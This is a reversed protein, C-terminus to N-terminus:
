AHQERHSDPGITDCLECESDDSPGEISREEEEDDGEVGKGEVALGGIDTGEVIICIDVEREFSNADEARSGEIGTAGEVSSFNAEEVGNRELNAGEITIHNAGEVGGGQRLATMEVEEEEGEAKVGGVVPGPGYYDVTLAKSMCSARVKVLGEDVSVSKKLDSMAGAAGIKSRSKSLKVKQNRIAGVRRNDSMLDGVESGYFISGGSVTPRDIDFEKVRQRMLPSHTQLRKYGGNKGTDGRSLRGVKYAAVTAHDLKGPMGKIKQGIKRENVRRDSVTLNPKELDIWCRELYGRKVETAEIVYNVISDKVDQAHLPRRVARLKNKLVSTLKMLSLEQRQEPNVVPLVPPTSGNAAGLQRDADPSTPSLPQGEALAEKLIVPDSNDSVGDSVIFVVDEDCLPVFCCILNSLDPQDGLDCGLCGGCDRPNREKGMHMAWTIEYVMQVEGRWVYCLSDGVSVVCLGWRAGGRAEQLEVVVGVCLTTTTGGANIIM